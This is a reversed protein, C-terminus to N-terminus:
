VRYQGGGGNGRVVVSPSGDVGRTSLECTFEYKANLGSDLNNFM